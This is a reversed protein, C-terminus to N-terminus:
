FGAGRLALQVRLSDVSADGRRARLLLDIRRADGLAANADAGDARLLRLVMGGHATAALPGAVPQLTSWAVGNWERRGLYHAADSARYSRWETRRMVAVPTGVQPLTVSAVALTLRWPAGVGRIPSDACAAASPTATGLTRRRRASDLAAPARGVVATDLGAWGLADGARPEAILVARAAAGMEGFAVDVIHPAPTGCVYGTLVPVDAVIASDSWSALDWAALPRLDAALALAAHELERVNALRAEQLTVVRLQTVFGQVALAAVLLLLPLAVVVELLSAGRRRRVPVV